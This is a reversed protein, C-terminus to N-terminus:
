YIIMNLLYKQNPLLGSINNVKITGGGLVTYSIFPQQTPYGAVNTQNFAAIISIGRIRSKEVNIKDNLVPKGTADVTMELQKFNEVRNEFDLRNDTIEVVQQMFPNLVLGLQEAMQQADEPFDEAKIQTVNNIKM